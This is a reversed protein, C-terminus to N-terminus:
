SSTSERIIRKMQAWTVDLSRITQLNDACNMVLCVITMTCDQASLARAIDVKADRYTPRSPNPAAHSACYDDMLYQLEIVLRELMPRLSDPNDVSKPSPITWQDDGNEDEAKRFGMRYLLLDCDTGFAEMFRKNRAPFSRRVNDQNLSDSVYRKLRTFVDLPTARRVGERDPSVELVHEYRRKLAETDTLVSIDEKSLVPREYAVHVHAQCAINSCEFHYDVQSSETPTHRLHHLPYERNPCPQRCGSEPYDISLVLYLRCKRCSAAVKWCTDQQASEDLRPLNCRDIHTYYEHKCSGRDLVLPPGTRAKGDFQPPNDLLINRNAVISQPDLRLLDQLFKPAAKGTAFTHNTPRHRLRNSLCCCLVLNRLGPLCPRSLTPSVRTDLCSNALFPSL